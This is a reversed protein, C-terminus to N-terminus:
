GKCDGWSEVWKGLGDMIAKKDAQTFGTPNGKSNKGSLKHKKDKIHPAFDRLFPGGKLYKFIHRM